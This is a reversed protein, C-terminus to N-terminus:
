SGRKNMAEFLVKPLEQPKDARYALGNVPATLKDLEEMDVGDGIGVCILRVPRRPDYLGKLSALTADLSPGGPDSNAGDTFLVVSNGARPDYLSKMRKMGAVAAQYLATGNGGLQNPTAFMARNMAERHSGAGDRSGLERVPMLKIIDKAGDLDRSFGWLGTQARDPMLDGALKAATGAFRIRSMGNGAPAAMSGSLDFIVLIRSPASLATIKQVLAGVEAPALDGNSTDAVDLPLTTTGAKGPSEFGAARVVERAHEGTLQAVVASIAASHRVTFVPYDLMPAGGAPQVSVLQSEGSATNAAAVAQETTPLLPAKASGSEAATLAEQETPVGARGAALVAGALAQQATDGKGLTQWTAIVAALGPASAPLHPVAVPATGAM